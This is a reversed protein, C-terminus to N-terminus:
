LSFVKLFNVCHEHSIRALQQLAMAIATGAGGAGVILTRLGTTEISRRRLAYILGVGDLMEASWQDRGLPVLVNATGTALAMPGKKFAINYAEYKYPITIVAGGFNKVGRLGELVRQFDDNGVHLPVMVANIGHLRFYEGFTFPSKVQKIPDGIIGLVIQDNIDTIGTVGM